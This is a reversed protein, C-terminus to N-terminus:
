IVARTPCASLERAIRPNGLFHRLEFDSTIKSQETISITNADSNTTGSVIFSRNIIAGQYKAPAIAVSSVCSPKFNLGNIWITSSQIPGRM